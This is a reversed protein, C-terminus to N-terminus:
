TKTKLTGGSGIGYIVVGLVRGVPHIGRYLIDGHQLSVPVPPEQPPAQQHLPRRGSGTFFIFTM